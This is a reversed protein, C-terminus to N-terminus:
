RLAKGLNFIARQPPDQEFFIINVSDYVHFKLYKTSSKQLFMTKILKRARVCPDGKNLNPVFQINKKCIKARLIM